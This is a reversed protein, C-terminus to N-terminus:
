RSHVRQNEAEITFSSAPEVLYPSGTPEVVTFENTRHCIILWLKLLWETCSNVNLCVIEFRILIVFWNDLTLTLCQCQVEM